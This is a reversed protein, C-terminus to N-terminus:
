EVIIRSLNESLNTLHINATAKTIEAWDYASISTKGEKGLITVTQEVLCNKINSIDVMILNMCVRGVISAKQGNIIVSGRNSLRMDLGEGYGIAIVAITMDSSTTYMGDYGISKGASIKKIQLIKAKLSLVPLLLTQNEPTEKQLYGYLGTGIRALQYSKYKTTLSGHSNSIHRTYKQICAHNFVDEQKHTEEKNYSQAFHSFVGQIKLFPLSEISKVFEELESAVVGLRSMGTDFKIHVSIKQNHKKGTENLKQAISIDYLAVQINHQVILDYDIDIYGITIIPKNVGHLRINLAESTNIVCIFHINECEQYLKSIELLGHGYANSKIVGAIQTDPGLWSKFQRANHEVASKSLEIWNQIFNLNPSETQNHSFRKKINTNM